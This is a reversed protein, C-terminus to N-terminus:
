GNNKDFWYHSKFEPYTKISRLFKLYARARETEVYITGQYSINCINVGGRAESANAMFLQSNYDDGKNNKPHAELWKNEAHEVARLRRAIEVALEMNTMEEIPKEVREKLEYNDEVPKANPDPLAMQSDSCIMKHFHEPKFDESGLLQNLGIALQSKANDQIEGVMDAACKTVYPINSTYHSEITKIQDLLELVKKRGVSKGSNALEYLDKRLDSIRDQVSGISDSLEKLLTDDVSKPKEVKEESIKGETDRYRILTIPVDGNFLLLRVFQEYSLAAECVLAGDPSKIDLEVYFSQENLCDNLYIKRGVGSQQRLSACSMKKDYDDHLRM